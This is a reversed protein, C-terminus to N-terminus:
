LRVFRLRTIGFLPCIFVYVVTLTVCIAFGALLEELWKFCVVFTFYNKGGGREKEVRQFNRCIEEVNLNKLFRSFFLDHSEKTKTYNKFGKEVM